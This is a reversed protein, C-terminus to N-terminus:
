KGEFSNLVKEDVTVPYKGRLEKIWEKELYNQYDATIIGKAEDLSKPSPELVEVVDVFIVSNNKTINKTLGKKWEIGHPRISTGYVHYAILHAAEHGPTDNIFADGNAHLMENNLAVKNRTYSAYGARRGKLKFSITPLNFDKSYFQSATQFADHIRNIAKAQLETM